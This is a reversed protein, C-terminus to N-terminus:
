GLLGRNYGLLYLSLEIDSSDQIDQPSFGALNFSLFCIPLVSLEAFAVISLCLLSPSSAFLSFQPLVLNDDDSFHVEPLCPVAWFLPFAQLSFCLLGTCFLCGLFIM